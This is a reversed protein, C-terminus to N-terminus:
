YNDEEYLRCKCQRKIKYKYCPCKTKENKEEQSICYGENENISRILRSVYRENRNLRYGTITKLDM